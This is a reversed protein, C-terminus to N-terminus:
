TFKIGFRELYIKVLDPRSRAHQRILEFFQKQPITVIGPEDTRLPPTTKHAQSNASQQTFLEHLPVNLGRAIAAINRIGVNHKGREVSGIYSRNLGCIESFTDQSFRNAERLSKVRQGITQLINNSNM